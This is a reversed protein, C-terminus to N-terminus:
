SLTDLKRIGTTYLVRLLGYCILLMAIGVIGARAIYTNTFSRAALYILLASGTILAGSLLSLLAAISQKIVQTENVYDLRPKWLNILLGSVSSVSACSFAIIFYSLSELIGYGGLVILLM